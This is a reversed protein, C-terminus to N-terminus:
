EYSLHSVTPVLKTARRQIKELKEIDKKLFPSWTPSAYELIPRVLSKYLVIFMDTDMYSFARKIVALVRSAKLCVEDVHNASSLTNNIYVGLDKECMSSKILTQHGTDDNM